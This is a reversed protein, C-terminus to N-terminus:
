HILVCLVCVSKVVYTTKRGKVHKMDSQGSTNCWTRRMEGLHHEVALVRCSTGGRGAVATGVNGKSVNRTSFVRAACSTTNNRFRVYNHFKCAAIIHNM